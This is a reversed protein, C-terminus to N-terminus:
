KSPCLHILISVKQVFDGGGSIWEDNFQKEGRQRLSQTEGTFWCTWGELSQSSYLSALNLFCPKDECIISKYRYQFLHDRRKHRHNNVTAYVTLLKPIFSSLGDESCVV